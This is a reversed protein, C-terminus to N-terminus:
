LISLSVNTRPPYMPNGMVNTLLYCQWGILQMFLMRCVTYIPTEEFLDHYDSFHAVHEPPLGYDSRTRPVFNEDRELSM